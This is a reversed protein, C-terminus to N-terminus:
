ADLVRSDGAVTEVRGGGSFSSHLARFANWGNQYEQAHWTASAKLPEGGLVVTLADNWGNAYAESVHKGAKVRLSHNAARTFNNTM